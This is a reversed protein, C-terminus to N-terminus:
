FLLSVLAIAILLPLSYMVYSAPNATAEPDLYVEYPPNSGDVPIDFNVIKGLQLGYPNNYPGSVNLDVNSYSSSSTQKLQGQTPWTFEASARYGRLSFGTMGSRPTDCESNGGDSYYCDSFRESDFAFGSFILVIRLGTSNSLFPWNRVIINFKLSDSDVTVTQGIPNTFTSETNYVYNQIELSVTQGDVVSTGTFTFARVCGSAECPATSDNVAFDSPLTLISRDEMENGEQDLELFGRYGLRFKGRKGETETRYMFFCPKCIRDSFCGASSDTCEGWYQITVGGNTEAQQGLQAFSCGVFLVAFCLIIFSKM